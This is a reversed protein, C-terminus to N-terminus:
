VGRLWQCVGHNRREAWSLQRCRGDEISRDVVGREAGVDLLDQHGRKLTAIDDHEVVEDGMLLGLNAERNLLGPREQSKERGVTGVEIRDFQGEGFQFREEASCTRAREVMDALQHRRGQPEEHWVFACIVDPM